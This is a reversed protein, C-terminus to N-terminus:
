EDLWRGNDLWVGGDRWRGDSLIWRADAETDSIRIPYFTGTWAGKRGNADLTFEMEKCIYRKHRIEFVRHAAYVNPDHSHVKVAKAYDTDYGGRYLAADVALLRLSAGVANTKYHDTWIGPNAMYEDTYPQPYRFATRKVHDHWVIDRIGTFFALYLNDKGGESGGVNGVILEELTGTEETRSSTGKSVAPLYAKYHLLDQPYDSHKVPIDAVDLGVPMMELEITSTAKERTLQEFEDVMAYVPRILGENGMNRFLYKRGDTRDTYLTDTKQHEAAEFWKLIRDLEGPKWSTPISEKKAAKKVTDSLCRWRWYETDPYQYSVDSDTVDDTEPEEVELEYVDEVHQVHVSREGSFFNDKLLLRAQRKRNDVVFVANFLREVQELFDRVSWGPLMEHWAITNKTHCIYLDKYVTNELQNEVLEYGMARLLERLYACLYPQPKYTTALSSDLTATGADIKVIWENDVVGADTDMVPALCYEVEPYTKQVYKLRNPFYQGEGDFGPTTKKMELFSIQLDGGIFYNLESNGSALQISVTDDTWGTIIETGHCYVRNDAMLVATRKSKVEQVSNLRNLHKYLEANTPNTLPLTLEYTYEGNKTIFPNERKVQVSFDKPLVVQVGDILLETMTAWNLGWM